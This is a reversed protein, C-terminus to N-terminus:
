WSLMTVMIMMPEIKLGEGGGKKKKILFEEYPITLLLASPLHALNQILFEPVVGGTCLLDLINEDQVNSHEDRVACFYKKM